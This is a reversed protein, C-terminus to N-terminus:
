PKGLSPDRKSLFSALIMAVAQLAIV